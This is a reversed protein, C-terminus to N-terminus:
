EEKNRLKDWYSLRNLIEKEVGRGKPRYFRVRQMREPFYNQGSFGEETNHDYVYEKGYDLQKM